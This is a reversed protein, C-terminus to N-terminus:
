SMKIEAEQKDWIGRELSTAQKNVCCKQAGTFLATFCVLQKSMMGLVPLQRLLVPNPGNTIVDVTLPDVVKVEKVGNVYSKYQSTPAAARQFSFVVDEATFPSGDQFKVGPRLNFRMTTPNIQEWSTALAPQFKFTEDYRVLPEYVYLNAQINLGENQSHPDLTLIDGQSAWKFTKAIGATPLAFAVSLATALILRRM